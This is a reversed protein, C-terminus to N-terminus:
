IFTSRTVYHDSQRSLKIKRRELKIPSIDEEAEIHPKVAEEELEEWTNNQSDESSTEDPCLLM